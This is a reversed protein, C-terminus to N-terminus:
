SRTTVSVDDCLLMPVRAGEFSPYLTDGVEAVNALTEYINGAAMADKVQGVIEGNEVYLGPSIGISYDGNPINGSHAGLAGEVIIGRDMMSILKALTVNGPKIFLHALSPGPKVTIPDGGWFGGRYGHGTSVVGLKKAYKLDYYFNELVGLNVLTLPQCAVAEDDFARAGPYSDNLPDDVITLKQSFIRQGLKDSVPSKKEYLSRGSLGSMIRWLLTIMSDPMFLVQMRGGKPEVTKQGKGFLGAMEDILVDPMRDLRKGQHLRGIGSGSGPFIINGYTGGITSQRSVDTGKSNLIRLSDRNTFSVATIEGASRSKLIACVRQAEDLLENGTLAKVTPDYTDLYKFERTAPLDYPAEVGGELAHLANDLLEQRDTLNRTYAFGLKGDKIIRLATGSLFNTEINYLKADQFTVSDSTYEASFVEAQDAAKKAMSLLKEM